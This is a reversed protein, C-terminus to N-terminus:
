ILMTVTQNPMVQETWVKTSRGFNLALMASLLFTFFNVKCDSFQTANVRWAVYKKVYRFIDIKEFENRNHYYFLPNM